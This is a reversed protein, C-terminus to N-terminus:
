LYGVVGTNKGRGEHFPAPTLFNITRQSVDCSINFCFITDSFRSCQGTRDTQTDTQRGAEKGKSKGRVGEM